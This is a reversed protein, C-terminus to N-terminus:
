HKKTGRKTTKKVKKRKRVYAKAARVLQAYVRPSFERCGVSTRSYNSLLSFGGTGYRVFTEGTDLSRVLDKLLVHRGYFNYNGEELESMRGNAISYKIGELDQIIM